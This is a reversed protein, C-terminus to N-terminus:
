QGISIREHRRVFEKYTQVGPEETGTYTAFDAKLLRTLEVLEGVTGTVQVMQLLRCTRCDIIPISMREKGSM